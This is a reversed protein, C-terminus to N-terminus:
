VDFIVRALWRGDPRRAVELEHYTVGKIERVAHGGAHVRVEAALGDEDLQEFVAGAYDLGRVEHLYLLERLWGAVVAVPGPGPVQVRVRDATGAPTERPPADEEEGRLLALMGHGARDLLQDLSDAEVDIGVDATHDLYTVGAPNV